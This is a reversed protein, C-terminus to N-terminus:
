RGELLILNGYFALIPFLLNDANDGYKEGSSTSIRSKTLNYSIQTM